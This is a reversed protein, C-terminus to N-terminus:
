ASGAWGFQRLTEDKRRTHGTGGMCTAEALLAAREARNVLHLEYQDPGLRTFLSTKLKISGDVVVPIGCDLNIRVM